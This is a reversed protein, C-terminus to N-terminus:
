FENNSNRKFETTTCLPVFYTLFAGKYVQHIKSVIHDTKTLMQSFESISFLIISQEM